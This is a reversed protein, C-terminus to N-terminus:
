CTQIIVTNSLGPIDRPYHCFLALTLNAALDRLAVPICLFLNTAIQSSPLTPTLLLLVMHLTCMENTLSIM